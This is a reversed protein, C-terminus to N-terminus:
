HLEHTPPLAIHKILLTFTVYCVYPRVHLQKVTNTDSVFSGKPSHISEDGTLLSAPFCGSFSDVHACLNVRYM